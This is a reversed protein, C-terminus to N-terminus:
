RVKQVELVREETLLLSFSAGRDMTLQVVDRVRMEVLCM